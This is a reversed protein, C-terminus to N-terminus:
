VIQGKFIAKKHRRALEPWQVLFTHVVHWVLKGSLSINRVRTLSEVYVTKMGLMKGIYIFPVAVGAGTSIIVNPREKRLIEIALFLNKIFNKVNRNTPLYAWYVKEGKLLFNTDNGPFSVWVRDYEGWLEKLFYLQLFHGGSSCVLCLKM